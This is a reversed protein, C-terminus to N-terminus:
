MFHRAMGDYGPMLTRGVVEGDLEICEVLLSTPLEASLKPPQNHVVNIDDPITVVKPCRNRGAQRVVYLRLM